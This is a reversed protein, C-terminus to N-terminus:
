RGDGTLGEVSVWDTRVNRLDFERSDYSVPSDPRAEGEGPGCELAIRLREPPSKGKRGIWPHSKLVSELDGDLPEGIAIPCSPPMSKRGLFPLWKPVRLADHLTRLVGPEGELGVLFCADALYYRNSVVTDQTGSKGARAVDKITHFDRQLVGEREVRVGMRLSALDSVDSERPRGLAACLLGIIGSKSPETATDRETFRSRTGWSQMPAEIRLLLVSM